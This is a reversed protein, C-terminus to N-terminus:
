ARQQSSHAVIEVQLKRVRGRPFEGVIGHIRTEPLSPISYNGDSRSPCLPFPHFLIRISQVFARVLRQFARDQLSGQGSLGFSPKFPGGLCKNKRLSVKGAFCREVLTPLTNPLSQNFRRVTSANKTRLQGKNACCADTGAMSYLETGLKRL